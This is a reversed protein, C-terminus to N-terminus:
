IVRLMFLDCGHISDFFVCGSSEFSTSRGKLAVLLLSWLAGVHDTRGEFCSRMDRQLAIPITHKSRISQIASHCSELETIM